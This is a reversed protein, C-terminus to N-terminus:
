ETSFSDEPADITRKCKDKLCAVVGHFSSNSRTRSSVIPSPPLSYPAMTAASVSVSYLTVFLSHHPSCEALIGAVIQFLRARGVGACSANSRPALGATVLADALRVQIPM